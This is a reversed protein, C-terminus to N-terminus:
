IGRALFRLKTRRAGSAQAAPHEPFLASTRKCLQAGIIEGLKRYSEYQAEDFFQGATSQQPFANGPKTNAM